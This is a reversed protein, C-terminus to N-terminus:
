DKVCRVSFLYAKDDNDRYVDELDYSMDRIWADSANYETASWWNGSYGDSGFYGDSSGNGGPLASFGYDDTGNDISWTTKSKLKKGATKEDGVFKVLVTWEDDSPLHWGVPCAIMAENWTYLRGYKACNSPDNGYCKSGAVESNLNEAM